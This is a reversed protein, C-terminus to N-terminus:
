PSEPSMHWPYAYSDIYDEVRKRVRALIDTCEQTTLKPIADKHTGVLILSCGASRSQVEEVWQMLREEEWESMGSERIQELSSMKWVFIYLSRDTLFLGHSHYVQQGALDLLQLQVVEEGFETEVTLKHESIDIGTTSQVDPLKKNFWLKPESLLCRLLSTKGVEEHGIFTVKWKYVLTTKVKTPIGEIYKSINSKWTSQRQSVSTGFDTSEEVQRKLMTERPGVLQLHRPPSSGDTVQAAARATPSATPALVPSPPAAEATAAVMQLHRELEAIRDEAKRRRLSNQRARVQTEQLTKEQEEMKVQTEALKNGIEEVHAKAIEAAMNEAKAAALEEIAFKWDKKEEGVAPAVPDVEGRERRRKAALPDSFRFLHHEGIVIRDGERLPTIEELLKGNVRVLAGPLPELTLVPDDGEPHHVICHRSAVSEGPLIFDVFGDGDTAESGITTDGKKFYYVLAADMLPDENLNIFRPLTKDVTGIIGLRELNKTREAQLVAAVRAKDEWSMNLDKFLTEAEALREVTEGRPSAATMQSRLREIEEKLERIQRAKPDENVVAKSEIKKAREAYRLTSLSEEFNDAHPSLTAIMITKSNGGLNERLLWTLTSDRYPIFDGKKDGGGKSLSSIVLGLTTLSKNINSGEQLTAGTAGTKDARESGALDVLNIKSVISGQDKRIMTLMLTFISHSRSSSANMATAAVTRAMNGKEMLDEIEKFSAVLVQALGEVYPGTSPHERVKLEKSSDKAPNLLCRVKENYIELFSVELKYSWDAQTAKMDEARKILADCLRPIIGTEAGYGMMSYSKGSGTQGYAFLCGNYGEFANNLIVTGLDVFVQEQPAFNPDSPDFSWYSYDFNFTKRDHKKPDIIATQNGTMELVCRAGMEIERKNFPRCRVAVLTRGM